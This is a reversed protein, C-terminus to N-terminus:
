RATSTEDVTLIKCYYTWALGQEEWHTGSVQHKVYPFHNVFTDLYIGSVM